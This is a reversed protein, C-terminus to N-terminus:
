LALESWVPLFEEIVTGDPAGLKRMMSRILELGRDRDNVVVDLGCYIITDDEGLQSGGGAVEGLGATTLAEHLPDEFREGRELPQLPAPLRVYFM